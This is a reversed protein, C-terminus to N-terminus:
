SHRHRAPHPLDILDAEGVQGALPGHGIAPERHRVVARGAPGHRPPAGRARARRPKAPGEGPTDLRDNEAQMRVVDARRQAAEGRTSWISLLPHVYLIAVFVFLVLVMLRGVRDWRIAGGRAPARSWARAPHPGGRPRRPAPPTAPPPWRAVRRRGTATGQAHLSTNLAAPRQARPVDRGRRAGGRDAPAPQVERRSRLAGPRRDQDARLGHRRRPRRDDHGRDRGLPPVHRRHLRRERAMAIADLTETLTGIQNVKILISNGVGLDIGRKLRETNTVFLDDGVLQVRDGILDTLARWGDWDEEAM